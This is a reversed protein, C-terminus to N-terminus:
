SGSAGLILFRYRPEHILVQYGTPASLGGQSYLSYNQPGDRADDIVILHPHYKKIVGELTETLYSNGVSHVGLLYGLLQPYSSAVVTDKQLHPFIASV